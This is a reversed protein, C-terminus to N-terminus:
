EAEGEKILGWSKLSGEIDSQLWGYDTGYINCISDEDEGADVSEQKEPNDLEIGKMDLFNEFHEIIECIFEQQTNLNLKPSLVSRLIDSKTTRYEKALKSLADLEQDTLRIRIENNRGDKIKRPRGRKKYKPLTGEKIFNTKWNKDGIQLSELQGRAILQRVTGEMMDMEKAYESVTLYGDIKGENVTITTGM